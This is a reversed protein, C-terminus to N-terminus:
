QKNQQFFTTVEPIMQFIQHSNFFKYILPSYLDPDNLIWRLYNQLKKTIKDLEFHMTTYKTTLDRSKNDGKNILQNFNSTARDIEGIEIHVQTPQTQDQFLEGIGKVLPNNVSSSYQRCFIDLEKLTKSFYFKKNLQFTFIVNEEINLLSAGNAITGTNKQICDVKCSYFREQLLLKCLFVKVDDIPSGSRKILAKDIDQGYLVSDSM